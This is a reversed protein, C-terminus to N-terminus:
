RYAFNNKLQDLLKIQVFDASLKSTEIEILEVFAGQLTEKITAFMEEDKGRQERIKEAAEEKMKEM